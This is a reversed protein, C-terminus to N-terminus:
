SRAPPHSLSRQWSKTERFRAIFADWDPVEVRVYGVETIPEAHGSIIRAGCRRLDEGLPALAADTECSHFRITRQIM